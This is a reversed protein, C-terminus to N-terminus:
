WGAFGSPLCRCRYQWEGGSALIREVWRGAAALTSTATGCQFRYPFRVFMIMLDCIDFSQRNVVSIKSVKETSVM